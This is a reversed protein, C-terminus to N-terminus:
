RRDTGDGDGTASGLKREGNAARDTNGTNSTQRRGRLRAAAAEVLAEGHRMLRGRDIARVSVGLKM